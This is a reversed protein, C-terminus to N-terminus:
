RAAIRCPSASRPAAHSATARHRRPCPRHLHLQRAKSRERISKVSLWRAFFAIRQDTGLAASVPTATGFPSSEAVVQDSHGAQTGPPTPNALQSEKAPHQRNGVGEVRMALRAAVHIKVADGSVVNVLAPNGAKAAQQVNRCIPACGASITEEREQGVPSDKRMAGLLFGLLVNRRRGSRRRQCRPAFGEQSRSFLHAPNGPKVSEGM